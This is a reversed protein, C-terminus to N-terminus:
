PRAEVPVEAASRCLGAPAASREGDIGFWEVAGGRAVTIGAADIATVVGSAFRDGKEVIRGGVMAYAGEPAVVILQVREKEQEAAAAPRPRFPDPAAPSADAGRAPSAARERRTLEGWDAPAAPAASALGPAGFRASSGSEPGEAGKVMRSLSALLCCAAVVAGGLLLSRRFFSNM